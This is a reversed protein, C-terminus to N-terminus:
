ETNHVSLTNKLTVPHALSVQVTQDRAYFEKSTVPVPSSGYSERAIPQYSHAKVSTSKGKEGM